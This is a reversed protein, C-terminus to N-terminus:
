LNHVKAKIKHLAAVIEVMDIREHPSFALCKMALHFVCSICEEKAYYNEDERELLGNAVIESVKNEQLAESVWEKLGMEGGFMENTPRKGTFMEMLTVGYSYVDGKTSVKGETGYEPAAYGITAITKTQVAVEGHDFLKSIGFDGVRAVMDEDILVNSPKIDCHVVPFTHYHHLYELALAVDIAIKLRQMLDLGRNKSYYLWKELSGNPMYELILAKFETNSCCGIIRVLNRHRISSLIESETDFSKVARESQSNFVKVAINLGDHLTGKFVTGFSGKGLINNENFSDTGKVLERYSIVRWAFDLALIPPSPTKKPKRRTYVITLVVTALLIISVFPPLIYKMLKVAYNSKLRGHNKVCPPVEFRTENGCLAYNEIFSNATFNVFTGKTPIEGELRNYSVNFYRLFPLSELSNPISGSLSNNSLDLRMLSKINGFSQPISGEFMNNSLSLTELSQCGDISIPIDGSFRNSSLDLQNISKFRGIQSPIQGSLNNSSLDLALIDVLNWLNTPITSNLNNSALYLYRLSKLEGLCEPIPGILSNGRLNLDGLKSTECIDTSIYGQLRNEDLYLRQLQKLNGITQPISGIFKNESLHAYQLSSLNGIGPPIVGHISSNFARFIRLSTSLNGISSPFFGNLPNFSIDLVQLYQCNTLSTIFSMEQDNSTLNNGWFDLFNLNRLNGFNPVFGTFSNSNMDLITLTSANSISTPIEGGLANYYLFLQQINFGPFNAIDSPLNGSFQNTSLDLIRLTSINFISSPISGSLSNNRVTLFELSGLNALEKPFEGRFTEINPFSGSLSNNSLDLYVLSSINFISSPINGTLSAGHISLVELRSLNGIEVPVGGSILKNGFCFNSFISLLGHTHPFRGEFDNVGLLLMKLMKLNGIGSPIRGHFHNFMLSLEELSSSNSNGIEKPITGSLLNYSLDLSKLRSSDFLSKPVTGGFSNNNLDLIELRPLSGIWSPIEGTFGNSSVDFVRLFTLNVLQPPLKGSIRFGSINLTTVRQHKTTCSIGIWSCINISSTSNITTSWNNALIGSPNLTISNKFAVLAEQDTTSNLPTLTASCISSTNIFFTLAFAFFFFYYPIKEM